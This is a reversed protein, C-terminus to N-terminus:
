FAFLWGLCPHLAYPLSFASKRSEHRYGHLALSVLKEQVATHEKEAKELDVKYKADDPKEPRSKHVKDVAEAGAKGTTGNTTPTPAVDAM